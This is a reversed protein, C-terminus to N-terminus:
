DKKAPAAAPAPAEKKAPADAAKAPAEPKSPEAAKPADPKATDGNASKSASSGSAGGERRKYDTTYYGSGNFIVTGPLSVKRNMAEGCAPCARDREGRSRVLLEEERGCGACVFEYIPM